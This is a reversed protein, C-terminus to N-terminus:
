RRLRAAVRSPGTAGAGRRRDVLSPSLMSGAPDKDVPNKSYVDINLQIFVM